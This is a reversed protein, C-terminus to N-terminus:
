RSPAAQQSSPEPLSQTPDALMNDVWRAESLTKGELPLIEHARVYEAFGERAFGWVALHGARTVVISRRQAPSLAKREASEFNTMAQRILGVREIASRTIPLVLGNREHVQVTANLETTASRADFDADTATAGAIAEVREIYPLAQFHLGRQVLRDATDAAAIATM